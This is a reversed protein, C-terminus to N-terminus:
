SVRCGGSGGEKAKVSKGNRASVGCTRLPADGGHQNLSFGISAVRAERLSKDNM